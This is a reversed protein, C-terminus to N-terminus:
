PAVLIMFDLVACTVNSRALLIPFFACFWKNNEKPEPREFSLYRRRPFGDPVSPPCSDNRSWSAMHSPVTAGRIQATHREEHM